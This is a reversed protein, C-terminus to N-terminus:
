ESVPNMVKGIFSISKTKNDKIIFIFPRNANFYAGASTTNVVVVTVAAAETGKEDVEVFSQHIVESVFLDNSGNIGSLDAQNPTFVKPMGLAALTTKLKEKFEIKFKPLSLYLEQNHMNALYENWSVIDLDEIIEDVGIASHPLIISMSYISDGYPIDIMQFKDNRYYPLEIENITMMEAMVKSGDELYFNDTRTDAKDFEYKWSGKFYIANILFMITNPNINDLVNKIKGETKNEIWGNINELTQPDNFDEPKIEALYNSENVNLFEPLITVTNRYWISNAISMKVKDDLSPLVELLNKYASNLKDIDWGNYKLTNMMEKQTEGKAGNLTMSLATSISFPSIFVNDDIHNKHIAKFIDFGFENNLEALDCVDVNEECNFDLEEVSTKECSFVGITLLCILFIIKKM